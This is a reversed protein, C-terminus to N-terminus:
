WRSPRQPARQGSPGSQLVHKLWTINDALENRSRSFVSVSREFAKWGFRGCVAGGAIAVLALVVHVIDTNWDFSEAILRGGGLLLVILGALAAVPAVGLLLASRMLRIRSARLDALFLQGQLEALSIVDYTFERVGGALPNDSEERPPTMKAQHYM